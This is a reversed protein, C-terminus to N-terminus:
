RGNTFDKIIESLCHAMLGLGIVYITALYFLTLLSDMGTDIM